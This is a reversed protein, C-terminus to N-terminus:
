SAAFDFFRSLPRTLGFFTLSVLLLLFGQLPLVGLSAVLRTVQSFGLDLPPSRTTHWAKFPRYTTYLPMYVELLSRRELSRVAGVSSFLRSPFVGFASGLHFLSPLSRPSCLMSLTLFGLSAVYSSPIPGLWFYTAGRIRCFALPSLVESPALPLVYSTPTLTL